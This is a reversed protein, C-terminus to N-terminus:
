RDHLYQRLSAEILEAVSIRERLAQVKARELISLSLAISTRRRPEPASVPRAPEGADEIREPQATRLTAPAARPEPM